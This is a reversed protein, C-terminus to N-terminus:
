KLEKATPSAKAFKHDFTWLPESQKAATKATLYCDNFSLTPHKAYFPLIESFLPRDCNINKIPFILDTFASIIFPRDYKKQRELVYVTETIAQDDVYFTIDSNRRLFKQAKECQNPVDNLILRLLINTDLSQIDTAM